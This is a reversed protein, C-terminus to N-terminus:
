QFALRDEGGNCCCGLNVFITLTCQLSSHNKLLDLAGIDYLCVEVTVEVVADHEVAAM